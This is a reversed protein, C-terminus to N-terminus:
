DGYPGPVVKPNSSLTVQCVVGDGFLVLVMVGLMEAAPARVYDRACETLRDIPHNTPSRTVGFVPGATLFTPITAGCQDM